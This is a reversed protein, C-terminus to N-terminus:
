PQDGPRAKEDQCWFKDEELREIARRAEFEARGEAEAVRRREACLFKVCYEEIAEDFPCPEGQMGFINEQVWEAFEVPCHEYAMEVMTLRVAWRLLRQEALTLSRVALRGRRLIKRRTKM